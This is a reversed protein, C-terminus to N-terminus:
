RMLASFVWPLPSERLAQPDTCISSVPSDYSPRPRSLSKDTFQIPPMEGDSYLKM